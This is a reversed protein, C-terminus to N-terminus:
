APGLRRVQYVAVNAAALARVVEPVLPMPLDLECGHDRARLAEPIFHFASHHAGREVLFATIADPAIFDSEGVEIDVRCLADSYGAPTGVASAKGASAM